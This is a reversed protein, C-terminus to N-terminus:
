KLISDEVTDIVFNEKCLYFLIVYTIMLNYHPEKNLIVMFLIFLLLRTMISFHGAKMIGVVWGISYGIGWIGFASLFFVNTTTLSDIALNGDVATKLINYRDIALSLGNGFIPNELFVKFCVVPSMIRTNSTISDTTLKWFIDQNIGYLFLAIYDQFYLGILILAIAVVDWIVHLKRSKQFWVFLEFALLLYGATSQSAIIGVILIVVVWTRKKEFQFIITELVLGFLLFSSFLGPEWFPGMLRSDGSIWTCIWITNYTQGRLNEYIYVPINIGHDILFAVLLAVITLSALTNGYVNRFRAFSVRETILDAIFMMGIMMIPDLWMNEGWNLFFSLVSGIVISGIIMSVTNISVQIKIYPSLIFCGFACLLLMVVKLSPSSVTSYSHGSCFLLGIAIFVFATKSRIDKVTM